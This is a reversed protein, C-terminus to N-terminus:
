ARSGTAHLPPAHPRTGRAAGRRPAPVHRSLEASAAATASTGSGAPSSRSRGTARRTSSSRTRHDPTARRAARGVRAAARRRDSQAQKATKAPSRARVRRGGAIPSGSRRRGAVAPRRSRDLARTPLDLERWWTVDTIDGFTCIMAIGTGKEPDALPHALVPVEVGFLPTAVTTGFLPQYRADDPHAVLACAAPSCSRDPPTSSARRRQRRRPPVRDPPLRRAAGPGGARGARGRHPLRRGVADARGAPVGRRPRPQAPVCAPQHPPRRRRDHHLPLSWDVSLGLRRFLEEFAEEDAAVLRECLEVFNPRSVPM